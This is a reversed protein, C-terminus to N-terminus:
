ERPPSTIFCTISGVREDENVSMTVCLSEDDGRLFGFVFVDVMAGFSDDEEASGM